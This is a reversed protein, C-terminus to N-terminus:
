YDNLESGKNQPESNIKFYKFTQSWEDQIGHKMEIGTKFFQFQWRLVQSNYFM